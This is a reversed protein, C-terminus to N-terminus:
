ARFDEGVKQNNEMQIESKGKRKYLASMKLQAIQTNVFSAFNEYDADGELIMHANVVRVLNSYANDCVVRAQKMAGATKVSREDTRTNTYERVMENAQKLREVIAMLNLTEVHAKHSGELDQIFNVLSGTEKDIQDRVNIKYDVIHQNLVTAANALEPIPADLHAEVLKKYGLYLKDRFSDAQTIKDTALSKSSTAFCDDEAKLTKQLADVQDKCKTSVNEDALARALLEKMFLFHAANNLYTLKYSEIQSM